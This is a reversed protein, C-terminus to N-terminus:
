VRLGIHLNRLIKLILSWTLGSTSVRFGIYINRRVYSTRNDTSTNSSHTFREEPINTLRDMRHGIQHVLLFFLMHREAGYIGSYRYM